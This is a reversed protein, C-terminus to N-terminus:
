RSARYKDITSRLKGRDSPLAEEVILKLGRGVGYLVLLPWVPSLLFARAWARNEREYGSFGRTGYFGVTCVVVCAIIGFVYWFLFANMHFEKRVFYGHLFHSDDLPHSSTSCRRAHDTRPIRRDQIDNYPDWSNRISYGVM